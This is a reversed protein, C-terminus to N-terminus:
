RCAQSVMTSELMVESIAPIARKTNPEPATRPKATTCQIPMRVEMNEDTTTERVKTLKHYPRRRLSLLKDMPM